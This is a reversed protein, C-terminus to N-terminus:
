RWRPVTLKGVIEFSIPDMERVVGGNAGFTVSGGILAPLFLSRTPM